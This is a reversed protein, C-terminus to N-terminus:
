GNGHTLENLELRQVLRAATTGLPDAHFL